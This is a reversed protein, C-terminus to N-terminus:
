LSNVFEAVLDNFRRPRELQVAHGAGLVVQIDGRWLTPMVGGAKLGELYQLNVFADQKGHIIAVPIDDNPDNPDNVLSRLVDLEDPFPIPGPPLLNFSVVGISGRARADARDYGDTLVFSPVDGNLRRRENFFARMYAAGVDPADAIPSPAYAPVPDTFLGNFDFGLIANPNFQFSFGFSALISLNLGPVNPGLFPLETTTPNAGVPATGFFFLGKTNPLLGLGQTLLILDGGLSWGVLVEAQVDPDNAVRAIAEIMGVQYQPFGQPIGNSDVPFPINSDVKGARGFGPLDMMFVKRDRGLEGFKQFLFSRSSSSNGHVLLIAPGETGASKYIPIEIDPFSPLTVTKFVEYDFEQTSSNSKVSKANASMAFGAVAMAILIRKIM